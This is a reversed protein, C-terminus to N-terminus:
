DGDRASEDAGSNDPGDDGEQGDARAPSPTDNGPHDTGRPAPSPSPAPPTGTASDQAGSTEPTDSVGPEAAPEAGDDGADDNEGNPPVTAGDAPRGWVAPVTATDHAGVAPVLSAPAGTRLEAVVLQRARSIPMRVTDDDNRRYVQLGARQDARLTRLESDQGMSRKREMEAGFSNEYYAHLAVISALLLLTSAIGITVIILTNQKDEAVAM